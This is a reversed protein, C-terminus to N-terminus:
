IGLSRSFGFKVNQKNALIKEVIEAEDATIVYRNYLDDCQQLLGPYSLTMTNSDFLDTLPKPFNPLQNIPVYLNSFGPTHSLLVPKGETKSLNVFFQNLENETPKHIQAHKKQESPGKDSDVQLRLKRKMSPTKFDIDAM